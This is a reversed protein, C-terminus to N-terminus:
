HHQRWWRFAAPIGADPAVPPNWGLETRALESSFPNDRTLFSVSSAAAFSLAGHGSLKAAVQLLGVATRAVALPVPVLHVRRGLGEGALRFFDAVTVPYDNALNYAKGGAVESTAARIAGDAVNAAHVVSLTTQGGGILPAVGRRLLKAVRPTFQRDRPGYIVAPRVATAWLRGAAHAGLVLEEAERKSRAYVASEPLPPLPQREDTKAAGAAYRTEGGYVAVSSLHLLRAGTREAATVANRTGDVNLRRYQEWAGRQTILAATHFIVAAGKAANVISPPDLVDGAIVAVGLRSLWGARAADRVLARVTWGDALLREVLHSGVLGTGGTVLAIRSAAAM